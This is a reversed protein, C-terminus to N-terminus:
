RYKYIYIDIYSIQTLIYCYRHLCRLLYLLRWVSFYVVTSHYSFFEGQIMRSFDTRDWPVRQILHINVITSMCLIRASHGHETFSNLLMYWVYFLYIGIMYCDYLLWIAIMYWDYFLYIGIMCCDYLLWIGIMFRTYVLRIAIMYWECFCNYVLWITILWIGSMFCTYVLWIGTMYLDYVVWIGIMYWDYLLWIAIM